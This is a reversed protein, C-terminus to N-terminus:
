PKVVKFTEVKGDKVIRVIYQGSAIESVPIVCKLSSKQIQVPMQRGAMDYLSVQADKFSDNLLVTVATRTVTPYVKISATNSCPAQISQINTTKSKGDHDVQRIRYYNKGPLPDKDTYQYSLLTSSNGAGPIQTLATFSSGDASREVTFYANNIETATSWKVEVECNRKTISFSAFEVPLPANISGIALATIAAGAPITGSLTSNETNGTATASGSLDVWETGNWGILRLDSALGFASLDPISVSVALGDDDGAVLVYDWFGTISVSNIPSAVATISHTAADSPDTVSGPNGTVWAVSIESAVAPAGMTFTRLDTANGVPFTFADTGIKSVYGDLHQADTNGGTYAAGSEFRLAGAQHVNRVTTTIGNSFVASGRVNAGDSNTIHIPESAGNSLELNFFFPRITGGIEQAGAVGLPGAFRDVHGTLGSYTGNNIFTQSSPGHHEFVGNNTGTYIGNTNNFWQSQWDSILGGDNFLEDDNYFQAYSAHLVLCCFFTLLRTKM